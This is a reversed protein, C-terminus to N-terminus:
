KITFHNCLQIKYNYKEELKSDNFHNLKKHSYNTIIQKRHGATAIKAIAELDPHSHRAGSTSILYRKSKILELFEKSINNKSGHHPVKVVEFNLEYGSDKLANLENLINDNHADGLFLLKKGKYNIIFSISSGNTKSSDKGKAESLKEINFTQKSNSADTTIVEIDKNHQVYLEYADDFIKDESINFNYSTTELYKLWFKSLRKLKGQNPSLLKINLDPLSTSFNNEICVAKNTFSTNWNCKNAYLLGALTSGQEVNADSEGDEKIYQNQLKIQELSLQEENTIQTKEKEFQLHRFSNHWVESVEIINQEIGNEEFFSIAGQIHDQDVHTIVLLDIKRGQKKLEILDNRIFSTYTDSLGMDIIINTEQNEGFSILFADGECAPYM